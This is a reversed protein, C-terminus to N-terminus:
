VHHRSRMHQSVGGDSSGGTGGGGGLGGSCGATIIIAGIAAAISLARRIRPTRTHM